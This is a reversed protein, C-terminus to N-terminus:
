ISLSTTIKLIANIKQNAKVAELHADVFRKVGEYLMAYGFSVLLLRSRLVSFSGDLNRNTKTQFLGLQNLNKQQIEIKKMAKEYAKQGQTLRVNSAYLADITSKLAGAGKAEFNIILKNSTAM